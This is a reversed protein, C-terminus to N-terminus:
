CESVIDVTFGSEGEDIARRLRTEWMAHAAFAKNIEEFTSM